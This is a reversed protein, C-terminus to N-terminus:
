TVNEALYAMMQYWVEVYRQDGMPNSLPFLGGFGDSKYYRSNLQKFVMDIYISVDKSM